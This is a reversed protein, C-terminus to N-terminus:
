SEYDRRKNNVQKDFKIYEWTVKEHEITAKAIEKYIYTNKSNDFGDLRCIFADNITLFQNASQAKIAANIGKGFNSVSPYLWGDTKSINNNLRQCLLYSVRYLYESGIAVPKCFESRVFNNIIYFNIIGEQKLEKPPNDLIFNVLNLLNESNQSYKILTFYDGKNINVEEIATDVNLSCYLVPDHIRNVRGLKTVYKAEPCLLDNISEFEHDPNDLKRIRYLDVEQKKEEYFRVNLVERLKQELILSSETKLNILCWEDIKKLLHITSHQKIKDWGIPLKKSTM